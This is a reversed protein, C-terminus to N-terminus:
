QLSRLALDYMMAKQEQSRRLDQLADSDAPDAEVAKRAVRISENVQKFSEEYAGRLEPRQQAIATLLKQDEDSQAAAPTASQAQQAPQAPSAAGQNAGRYIWLAGAVLAIAAAAAIWPVAGWSNPDLLRGRARAPKKVLGERELSNQIGTWVRPDPDLMPVLLKAQEAIYRLDAVLDACVRCERLHAEEEAKGGTEIIYPLVKQFEACTM